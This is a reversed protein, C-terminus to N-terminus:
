GETFGKHHSMDGSWTGNRLAYFALYWLHLSFFRLKRSTSAFATLNTEILTLPSDLLLVARALALFPLFLGTLPARSGGRPILTVGCIM